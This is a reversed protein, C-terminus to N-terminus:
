QMKPRSVIDTRMKSLLHSIHEQMEPKSIVGRRSEEPLSYSCHKETNSRALSAQEQSKLQHTATTYTQTELSSIVSTRSERSLTHSGHRAANQTSIIDTRSEVSLLHSNHEM